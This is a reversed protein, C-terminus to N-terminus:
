IYIRFSKNRAYEYFQVAISGHYLGSLLFLDPFTQFALDGSNSTQLVADRCKGGASQAEAVAATLVYHKYQKDTLRSRLHRMKKEVAYATSEPLGQLPSAETFLELVFCAFSYM